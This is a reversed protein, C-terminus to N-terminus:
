RVGEETAMCVLCGFTGFPERAEVIEPGLRM